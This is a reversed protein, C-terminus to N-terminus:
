AKSISFVFPIRWEPGWSQTKWTNTQPDFMNWAKWGLKFRIGARIVHLNFAGNPGIAYFTFREHAPDFRRVRWDRQDFRMGLAWYGFGYATNRYLWMVRGWYRPTNPPYRGDRVGADLTDDFTQVWKLWPPLWGEKSAFLPAWWNVCLVCFLTFALDLAVFPLVIFRRM